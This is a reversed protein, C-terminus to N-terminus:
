SAAFKPAGTTSSTADELRSPIGPAFRRTRLSAHRRFVRARARRFPLAVSGLRSDRRHRAPAPLGGPVHLGAAHRLAVDSRFIRHDSIGVFRLVSAGDGASVRCSHIGDPGVYEALRPATERYTLPRNHEEPVRMWSGLHVEYISMRRACRTASAASRCGTRTTGSTTWIGCWRRRARLNKTCCASRIPRTSAIDMVIRNSTFNTSREMLKSGACVRGLHRLVRAPELRHTKPDWENFSGVVSVSRANPAWVSFISARKRRKALRRHAGMKDYIRYHSGENFLYLDNETLLQPSAVTTDPSM